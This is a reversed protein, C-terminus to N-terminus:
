FKWLYLGSGPRRATQSTRAVALAQPLQGGGGPVEVYYGAIPCPRRSLTYLCPKERRGAMKWSKGHGKYLYYFPGNARAPIYRSGADHPSSRAARSPPVM